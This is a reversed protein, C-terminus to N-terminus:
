CTPQPFPTSASHRRAVKVLGARPGGAGILALNGLTGKNFSTTGGDFSINVGGFSNSNFKNPLALLLGNTNTNVLEITQIYNTLDNKM